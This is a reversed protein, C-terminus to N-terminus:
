SIDDHILKLSKISAPIYKIFEIHEIEKGYIVRCKVVNERSMELPVKIAKRLVIDKIDSFFDRRTKDFRAQHYELLRPVGEKIKITEIFRCM